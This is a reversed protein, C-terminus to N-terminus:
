HFFSMSIGIQAIVAMASRELCVGVHGTADRTRLLQALNGSKNILESYSMKSQTTWLAIADPTETAQKEVMAYMPVSKAEECPRTWERVLRDDEDRQQLNREVQEAHLRRRVPEIRHQDGGHAGFAFVAVLRAVVFERAHGVAGPQHGD